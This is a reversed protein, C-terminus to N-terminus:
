GEGPARATIRLAHVPAGLLDGVAAHVRRQRELRFLGRFSAAVITVAFHTGGGERWGAHGRHQESEDRVELSEPAFAARLRRELEAAVVSSGSGTTASM